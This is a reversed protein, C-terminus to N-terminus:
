RMGREDSEGAGPHGAMLRTGGLPLMCSLAFAAYCLLVGDLPLRPGSLVEAHSLLYPLPVWMFALSSPMAEYRWAATWRWGLLGLLLMALLSGQFITGCSQNLWDPLAAEEAAATRQWAEGTQFWQQGFCFYLGARLRRRLTGAPDDAVERATLDALKRYREPQPLQELVDLRIDPEKALAARLSAEPLPGGTAAPNNGVWLHLYASNVVPFVDQFQRYNQVLWPGLATALGLSALFAYLWGRTLTRCRWLFWLVAVFAFPLYAARVLSLAALSLGFLWSTLPGGVQGGRAGLALGAGLLFAAVVGDQLEATSVIGFPHFACFLGTLTAVVLSSFARRAFLFYCGATSAGLVCQLWRMSRDASGLDIPLSELLTMLVAYGPAVHATREETAALPALSRFVGDTRLHHVLADLETPNQRGRLVTGEPYPPVPSPDQVLLPGAAHGSEACAVLYWVRTGAAATLVLLLLLGDALRLRRLDVM